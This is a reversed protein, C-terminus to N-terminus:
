KKTTMAKLGSVIMGAVIQIVVTQTVAEGIKRPSCQKKFEDKFIDGRSTETVEVEINEKKFKKM